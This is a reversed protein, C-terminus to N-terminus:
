EELANEKKFQEIIGIVDRRAVEEEVEYEDLLVKVLDDVEFDGEEMRKWLLLSSANLAIIKSFDINTEGMPVVFSQGCVENLKFGKRLKM